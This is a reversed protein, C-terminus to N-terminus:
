RGGRMKDIQEVASDIKAMLARERDLARNIQPTVVKVGSATTDTQLYKSVELLSAMFPRFEARLAEARKRLEELSAMSQSRRTEGKAALSDSMEELDREWRAFYAQAREDASNFQMRGETALRELSAISDILRKVQPEIQSQPRQTVDRAANSTTQIQAKGQLLQDRLGVLDDSIQPPLEAQSACGALLVGTALVLAAVLANPTVTRRDHMAPRYM